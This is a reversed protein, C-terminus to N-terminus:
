VEDGLGHPAGTQQIGSIKVSFSSGLMCYLVDSLMTIDIRTRLTDSYATLEVRTVSTYLLAVILTFSLV